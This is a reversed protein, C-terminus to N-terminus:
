NRAQKQAIEAEVLRAIAEDDDDSPLKGGHAQQLLANGDTKVNAGRPSPATNNAKATNRAEEKVSLMPKMAEHAEKVSLGKFKAYDLVEAIDEEHIPAKALYIVDMDNLGQQTEKPTKAGKEAKEARIKYNEALEKAKEAELAKEQLSQFEQSLVEQKKASIAEEQETEDMGLLSEQFEADAEIKENVLTDIDM